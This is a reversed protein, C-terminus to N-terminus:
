FSKMQLYFAPRMKKLFYFVIKSFLESSENELAGRYPQKWYPLLVHTESKQFSVQKIYIKRAM